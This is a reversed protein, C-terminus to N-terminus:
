NLFSKAKEETLSYKEMLEKDLLMYTYEGIVNNNPVAYTTGNLKAASLLTDSVYEKIKKSSGSLEADLASLWGKDVYDLFMDEGAIYIIDVQYPVTEPYKIITMGNALTETADTVAVDTTAETAIEGSNEKAKEYNSIEGSLTSEYVDKTLFKLVLQTKFKSKTIANLEDSVLKITDNSLENESVIWMTLTKAAESAEDSINEAAEETDKSSCATLVLSLLM